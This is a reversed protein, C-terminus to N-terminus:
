KDIRIIHTIVEVAKIMSPIPIFEYPGHFNHGGTFLNPTPLGMYSLKAGDTGGRIPQILPQVGAQLMAQRAREVIHHVPEIKEKMNYYQDTLTVTVAKTNHKINLQNSIRNLTEKRSEFHARDHDRIIYEMFAKEVTGDLRILHYFGEYGETKEPCETEPLLKHFEFAVQLANIMKDKATGPHVNRGSIKVKASAANFNEFELEGIQGGDVTYAFDAGFSPVDFLDAGRGIEEDPTFGIRITGHLIGPHDRFYVLTEMIEAIGAKDDAGLLTTGDTVILDQEKYQLLEPFAAPDLVINKEKNLIIPKGSYNHVVRPNVGKGNFDPSTDMHAILGIVPAPQSTNAPLTATIYGHTDLKIQNCGAKKLDAVLIKALDLQAATSPCSNVAPDSTTTIRAYRILRSAVPPLHNTKM